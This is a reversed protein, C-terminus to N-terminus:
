PERSTSSKRATDARRCDKRLILTQTLCPYSSSRYLQPLLTVIRDVDLEAFGHLERPDGHVLTATLGDVLGRIDLNTGHQNRDLVGFPKLDLFLDVTAVLIGGPALAKVMHEVTSRADDQDLHELVSLCVVRDFSGPEIDAEQLRKRILKVDTGLAENIRDHAHPNVKWWPMAIPAGDLGDRLPDVTVVDCGELAFVFQMGSLGGGVDLLRSGARARASFYAWPYEFARTGASVQYAFPGYGTRPMALRAGMSVTRAESTGWPVGWRQNWDEYQPPLPRRGIM